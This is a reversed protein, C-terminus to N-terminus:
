ARPIDATSLLRELQRSDGVIIASLSLRAAREALADRLQDEPGILVYPCQGIAVPGAGRAARLRDERDAIQSGSCYDVTDIFISRRIEGPARGAALAAADLRRASEELDAVTTTLRRIGDAASPRTRGIGARRSSGNFDVWDAAAGAIRLFGDSGGGLLIRPATTMRPLRLHRTRDHRQGADPSAAADALLSRVLGVAAGFQGLREAHPPMRGALAEFEESNWGAGLGAVVRESGFLAALQAFHRAILVPHGLTANLVFTGLQLRPSIAGIAALVPVPDPCPTGAALLGGASTFLHDPILVGAAGASEWQGIRARLDALSTFDRALVFVDM